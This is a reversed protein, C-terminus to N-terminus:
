CGVIEDNRRAGDHLCRLVMLDRQKEAEDMLSNQQVPDFDHQRDHYHGLTIAYSM